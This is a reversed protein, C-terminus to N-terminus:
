VGVRHCAFGLNPKPLRELMQVIRHGAKGDFLIEQRLTRSYSNRQKTLSENTLLEKAIVSIEEISETTVIGPRSFDPDNAGYLDVNIVPVDCAIAWQATSSLACVYADFAPLITSLSEQVVHGFGNLIERYNDIDSKPHLSFLVNCGAKILNRTIEATRDLHLDWDCFNHEPDNPVSFLVLPRDDNVEYKKVLRARIKDRKNYASYVEDLEVEGTLMCKSPEVGLATAAQMRRQDQYFVYESFGGGQVWPNASLMRASAHALTRWGPSFLMKGFQTTRVQRPYLYMALFNLLPPRKRLTISFRSQEARLTAISEADPVGTFAIISPVGSDRAARLFTPVPQLERDGPVLAAVPELKRILQVFRDYERFLDRRTKQMFYLSILFFNGLRNHRDPFDSPLLDFFIDLISKTNCPATSDVSVFELGAQSLDGSMERMQRTALVFIPKITGDDRLIRALKKMKHFSTAHRPLLLVRKEALQPRAALPLSEFNATVVQARKKPLLRITM